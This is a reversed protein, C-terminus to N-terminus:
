LHGQKDKKITKTNFDIKESTLIRESAKMHNSNVHYINKCEKVKLGNMSKFRFHAEVISCITPDQKKDLRMIEAKQSSVKCEHQYQYLPNVMKSKMKQSDGTKEGETEGATSEKAYTFIELYLMKISELTKATYM